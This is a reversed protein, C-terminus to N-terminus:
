PSIQDGLLRLLEQPDFQRALAVLPHEETGLAELQATFKDVKMRQHAIRESHAKLSKPKRGKLICDRMNDRQSGYFLHKPEICNPRDCRHLVMAGRPRRGLYRPTSHKRIYRRLYGDEVEICSGDAPLGLKAGFEGVTYNELSHLKKVARSLLRVLQERTKNSRRAKGPASCVSCRVYGRPRKSGCQECVVLAM